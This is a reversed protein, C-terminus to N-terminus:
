EVYSSRLRSHPAAFILAFNVMPIKYEFWVFKINLLVTDGAARSCLLSVDNCSMILDHNCVSTATM